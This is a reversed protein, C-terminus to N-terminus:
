RLRCDPGPFHNQNKRRFVPFPTARGFVPGGQIREFQYLEEFIVKIRIEILLLNWRDADIYKDNFVLQLHLLEIECDCWLLQYAICKPFNSRKCSAKTIDIM